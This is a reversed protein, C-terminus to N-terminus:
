ITSRRRKRKTRKSSLLPTFQESPVGSGNGQQHHDSSAVGTSSSTSPSQQTQPTTQENSRGAFPLSPTIGGIERHWSISRACSPSPQLTSGTRNESPRSLNQEEEEEHSLRSSGDNNSINRRSIDYGSFRNNRRRLTGSPIPIEVPAHLSPLPPQHASLQRGLITTFSDINQHMTAVIIIIIIIAAVWLWLYCVFCLPVILHAKRSLIFVRELDFSLM